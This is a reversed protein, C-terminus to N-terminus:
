RPAPCTGGASLAKRAIERTERTVENAVLPALRKELDAPHLTGLASIAAQGLRLDAESAPQAARQALLTWAELDAPDCLEALALLARVRLDLLERRDNWTARLLHAHARAKHRSLGDIALGRLEAMPDKLAGALAGDSAPTPPLAALSILANKRVFTWPEGLLRASLARDIAGREVGAAAVLALNSLAAERVRPEADATAHLVDAGLGPVGAAVAAAQARLRPDASPALAGRLFAIAGEDGGRAIEAAPALLLYHTSFDDVEASLSAFAARAADLDRLASGGARLVDIRVSKPRAAFAQPELLPGLAEVAREKRLARSLATRLGRRLAADPSDLADALTAPAREPAVLALDEAALLRAATPGQAVLAILAGVGDAGCRRLRERARELTRQAEEDGRKPAANDRVRDAFFPAQVACSSAEVVGQALDKGAADLKPFLASVTQAGADGLRQLVAAAAHSRPSAGALAGALAEASLGDLETHAAVEALTIVPDVQRDAYAEDLVIGVCSTRLPESFTVVYHTEARRWGDEPLTVHFIRESTAVFLSKPSAGGKVDTSPRVTLDLSMLPVDVSSRLLVMEGRGDGGRAESWATAPDGDTIAAINRGLASSAATAHLLTTVPTPADSRTAFLRTASARDAKSVPEIPVDRAMTMTGPDLTRLGTRVARGCLTLDAREEGVVVRTGEPTPTEEILPAREEGHEGRPAGVFGRWLIAPVDSSQRALPAAVLLVWSGQALPVDVRVIRRKGETELVKARAAGLRPSVEAPPELRTAGSADCSAASDCVRATMGTSTIALALARQEGSENAVVRVEAQAASSVLLLAVTSALTIPARLMWRNDLGPPM